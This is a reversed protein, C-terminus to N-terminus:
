ELRQGAVMGALRTTLKGKVLYVVDIGRLEGTPSLVTDYLALPRAILPDNVGAMRLMLFQGPLFRRAMEPAAFRVRFTERAVPVTDLIGLPVQSARDAFYAAHLPNTM